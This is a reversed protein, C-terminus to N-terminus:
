SKQDRDLSSKKLVESLSQIVTRVDDKRVAAIEEALRDMANDYLEKRAYSRELQHDPFYLDRVVEAISLPNGSHLKEEFAQVQRNWQMRMSRPNTKLFEIAKNITDDNSLHRLGASIAKARPISLRLKEKELHIVILEIDLGGIQQKEITQIEGVGHVPYVVMDGAKFNQDTNQDM